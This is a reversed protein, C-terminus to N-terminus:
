KPIRNPGPTKDDVIKNLVQLVDVATTLKISAINVVQSTRSMSEQEPFLTERITKLGVPCTASPRRFVRLLKTLLKYPFGWPNSDVEECIGNFCRRKSEKIM